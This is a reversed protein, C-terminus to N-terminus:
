EDYGPRAAKLRSIYGQEVEIMVTNVNGDITKGVFLKSKPDYYGSKWQGDHYYSFPERQLLARGDEDPVHRERLRQLAHRTFVDDEPQDDETPAKKWIIEDGIGECKCTVDHGPMLGNCNHVLVPASGALVYYSHTNAVTLDFTQHRGQFHGVSLVTLQRGSSHLIMGPKLDGANVWRQASDVWFPHTDTAVIQETGSGDSLEVTSFAKDTNTTITGTVKEGTTTGSAADTSLVTDGTTVESIPKHSGDALLVESDALFSHCFDVSAGGGLSIELDYRNEKAAAKGNVSGYTHLGDEDATLYTGKDAKGCSGRFACANITLIIGRVGAYNQGNAPYAADWEWLNELLDQVDKNCASGLSRCGADIAALEETVPPLGASAPRKKFYDDYANKLKQVTGSGDDQVAVVPSIQVYVPDGGPMTGPPANSTDGAASGTGGTGQVCELTVCFPAYLGSPDSLNVPNNDSYAYGNWQQPDGTGLIPDPNLFRGTAPQYERAGLNTLGTAPDLTGGVFGSSGSWSGPAPQTGRPNGFPDSPRRTVAQSSDSSIQVNGTGHSDAWQYVLTGGATAATVRSLTVGGPAGYSRVDSMSGSNDVTLQDPGLFLTTKGANRRILQGGDADYLYTTTGSQGSIATTDLKDEGNWTLTTTGSPSTVATTNGLVDYQYSATTTGSASKTSSTLLAHPGGTGGGTNPASTATNISGPAGFTQTTTVDNATNGTIDHQVLSTRNGTADYGYSQWYPAPGGVSSRPGTANTCSGIGPVSASAGTGKVAGSSDTWAGTAQTTTGATDTWANTLRGLYDYTFCQADTAVSDQLDSISTVSGSQNYTYSVQNVSVTGNQRDLWSTILHGTAPDWQQTSVLQNGAPGLTTRTARGWADYNVRTVMPSAGGSATLVGTTTYTYGVTEAPLGGLAPLTTRKVTGLVPNYITTTSYTGALEGESSPITVSAGTPRYAIDYGTVAKIYAQGSAGGVYRTSSTLQGKALTDYVWGALQNAPAVSGSYLGTMRGLLDYSYALTNGKADTAHDIRSNADYYTQTTGSDPETASVQRGQLDYGYSWTNGAADTRGAPQGGRTYSYNTVDADTSRGTPTSTRYQWLAVTHGRADIVTSAPMAGQPPTVDTRDAGPYATATSWQPQGYSMFASNTVRGMGDYTTWTQAPVQSDQPSFVATNPKTTSDFYPSSTKIPWGHSDYVTDSVLRGAAGTPLTAQAQRLRNLGDYIETKWSFDTSGPLTERLTRTTVSSPASTGNVSYTYNISASYSTSRDPTWVNTVRGLGDYQETATRNNPDTATLALGRGPEQTVTSTWGTPSTSVVTTPYAGTGPTYAINSTAVTTNPGTLQAGSANYTSGDSSSKTLPRGYIDSTTAGTNLYVPNGSGDYHDLIQSSTPDATAGAQGFPQGDFLIRTDSVTNQANAAMGCSGAVAKRESLLGTLAPNSSTAYSMTTCVEPTAASGDGQDDSTLVRNGHAPDTTVVSTTTRWTTGDSLLAKSIGTAQASAYRAVLPPMGGVQAQTATTQQSSYVTGSMSVVQGGVQTYAQTALKAGSLWNSDTVTGGLPNAVSVSRRTGDAKYDGDMGRLYIVTQQTKPAEGPFASGTNVTVSQYGRFGDWTRTAPDTFQADNRHWATDGNYTYHTAKSVAGTVGDQETIDTVLYKNFWDSVPTTSSSGPLYWHVPQCPLTNGDESSPMPGSVRSCAPQTYIVNIQGGTETTIQQIRPENFAPEAPVLGDVRNAKEVPTFTVPPLTVANSAGGTSGTRTISDLWLTQPTGDGPDRFSQGLAWSDVPTYSGNALVSTAITTLRKTTFFSPGSVNCSSSGDCAQDLPTDPWYAQNAKTRQSPDCTITGSPLCREATTFTVLTAAKVTGKATLQEPLRQGYAIQQLNGGRTYTTLTGIGNNQGAGQSYQNTEPTYTYTILNQHADVVYDLNWRWGMMCNSAQGSGSNYCPDGSNPSYVPESWASKSAQDSGDGGPLHNQGFYYQTGDGTTLRWYEGTPLGNPAGTLQEVKSGDDSQLHWVGTADDRVLAGSHGALSITANQGGWCLDYSNSIGDKSCSKYSREIFGPQYDWGAGVWSAQANQASTKGDVASSDYSLAVSPAVGGLPPPLQIPYSYTFNGVNSGSSWAASPNLSTAAYSGAPGSATPAAALVLPATQTSAAQVFSARVVGGSSAVSSKSQPLAVDATLTGAAQDLVAAVPTQVRCEAADPTTLACAPLAVLHARDAWAQGGLGKVELSVRVQDGAQGSLSVLSTQGGAAAGSDAGSVEVKVSRTRQATGPQAAVRVPLEGARAPADGASAAAAGGTAARAAQADPSDAGITM